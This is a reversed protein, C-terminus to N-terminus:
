DSILAIVQPIPIPVPYPKHVVREVPVAVLKEVAKEIVTAEPAPKSASVPISAYGPHERALSTEAVGTQVLAQGTKWRHFFLLVSWKVINKFALIIFSIM